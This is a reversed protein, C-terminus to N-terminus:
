SKLVRKECVIGDHEIWVKAGEFGVNTTNTKRLFFDSREFQTFQNSSAVSWPVTITFNLPYLLAQFSTQWVVNTACRMRTVQVVALLYRLRVFFGVSCVDLENCAWLNRSCRM